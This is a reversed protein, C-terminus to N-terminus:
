PKPPDRIVGFAGQLLKGTLDQTFREKDAVYAFPLRMVWYSSKALRIRRECSIFIPAGAGPQVRPNFSCFIEAKPTVVHLRMLQAMKGPQCTCLFYLPLDSDAIANGTEKVMCGPAVKLMKDPASLMFRHGYSCEYEVGIFVKCTIPRGHKDPPYKGVAPWAHSFAFAIEWPLLYNTSKLFGPHASYSLGFKHNYMSSPGLRTVAWSSFLPRLGPQSTLTLMGPLHEMTSTQGKKAPTHPVSKDPLVSVAEDTEQIAPLVSMAEDPEQIAAAEFEENFPEFIPFEMHGLDSCDCEKDAMSQYFLCNAQIATFPDDRTSIKRGCNCASRYIFGSTHEQDPEHKQLKCQNGTLSTATCQQRGNEWLAQCEEELQLEYQACKPGRAETKYLRFAIALRAEHESKSYHPPLREQYKATALSLAKLCRQESFRTATCVSTIPPEEIIILNFLCQAVAIWQGLIPLVFYAPAHQPRSSAVTDDFGTDKAQQVHVHLFKLFNKESSPETSFPAKMQTSAGPMCDQVLGRVAETLPDKPAAEEVYVFDNNLPIAFLSCSTTKVIGTNKLIHYIKDELNHELKKIIDKNKTNSREFYFLMRPVCLRGNAVWVSNLNDQAKLSNCIKGLIKQSLADVAKFYQIYSTDFSSGPHSVIIIHSVYLLFLLYKSFESQIEDYASLFDFDEPVDEDDSFGGISEIFVDTDLLSFLHLYVIQRKEDYSGKICTKNPREDEGLPFIRGISKIKLGSANFASKGIISVIVVKDSDIGQHKLLNDLNPLEFANKLLSM